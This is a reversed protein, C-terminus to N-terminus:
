KDKRLKKWANFLQIVEDKKKQSYIFYSTILLYQMQALVIFMKLLIHDNIVDYDLIGKMAGGEM